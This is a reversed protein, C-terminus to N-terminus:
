KYKFKWGKHTKQRGCLVNNIGKNKMSHEVAFEHQNNAEYFNGDPSEAIFVRQNNRENQEKTNEKKTIFMCTDPSYIKNGKIKTDKDIELLHLIDEDYGELKVFDELYNSFCLWRECVTVGVKGYSNYRHSTTNYCRDIMNSWRDYATQNETTRREGLYGVGHLTPFFRNIPRGKLISEKRAKMKYKVGNVEDFEINYM